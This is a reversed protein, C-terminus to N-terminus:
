IETRTWKCWEKVKLDFGKVRPVALMCELDTMPTLDEKREVKKGKEEAVPQADSTLNGAGNGEDNEVLPFPPVFNQCKYYAYADVIVRGSV